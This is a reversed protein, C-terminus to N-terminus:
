NNINKMDNEPITKLYLTLATDIIDQISRRQWYAINKITQINAKRVRYTKAVWVVPQEQKAIPTPTPLAQKKAPLAPRTVPTSDPLEESPQDDFM